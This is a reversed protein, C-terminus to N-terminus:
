GRDDAQHEADLLLRLRRDIRRRSRALAGELTELVLAGAFWGIGVALAAILISGVWKTETTM